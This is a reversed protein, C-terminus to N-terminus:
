KGPRRNKESEMWTDAPNVALVETGPAPAAPAEATQLKKEAKKKYKLSMRTIIIMGLVVAIAIEESYQAFWAPMRKDMLQKVLPALNGSETRSLKFREDKELDAWFGFPMEVLTEVTRYPIEVPTQARGGVAAAVPEPAKELGEPVIVKIDQIEIGKESIQPVIQKSLGETTDTGVQEALKEQIEPSTGVQEPRSIIQKKVNVYKACRPCKTTVGSGNYEWTHKCFKCELLVM